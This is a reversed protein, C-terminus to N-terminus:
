PGSKFGYILHGIIDKQWQNTQNILLLNGENLFCRTYIYITKEQKGFGAGRNKRCNCCPQTHFHRMGKLVAMEYRFLM